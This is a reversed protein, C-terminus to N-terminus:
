GSSCFIGSTFWGGAAIEPAVEGRVAFGVIVEGFEDGCCEAVLGLDGIGLQAGHKRPVAARVFGDSGALREGGLPAAADVLPGPGNREDGGVDGGLRFEDAVERRFVRVEIQENGVLNANRDKQAGGSATSRRDRALCLCWARVEDLQAQGVVVGRARPGASGRGLGGNGVVVQGDAAGDISDRVRGEPVVRGEEDEFVIGLVAGVVHVRMAADREDDALVRRVPGRRARQRCGNRSSRSRAHAGHLRQEAQRRHVVVVREARQDGREKGARAILRGIM